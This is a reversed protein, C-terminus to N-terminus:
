TAIRRVMIPLIADVVRINIYKELCWISLYCIKSASYMQSNGKAKLLLKFNGPIWYVKTLNGQSWTLFNRWPITIVFVPNEKEVLQPRKIFLKDIFSLPYGSRLFSTEFFKGAFMQQDQLHGWCRKLVHRSSTKLCTKLIDQLCTKFVGQLCISVFLVNHLCVFYTSPIDTDLLDLHLDLLDINWFDINSLELAFGFHM